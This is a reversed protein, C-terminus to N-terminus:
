EGAKKISFFRQPEKVIQNNYNVFWTMIHRQPFDKILAAKHEDYIVANFTGTTSVVCKWSSIPFNIKPTDSLYSNLLAHEQIIATVEDNKTITIFHPTTVHELRVSTDKQLQFGWVIKIDFGSRIANLLELKSGYIRSGDANHKYVAQWGNSVQKKDSDFSFLVYTILLLFISYGIYKLYGM